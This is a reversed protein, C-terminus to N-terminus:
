WLKLTGGVSDKTQPGSEPLRKILSHFELDKFVQVAKERDYGEWRCEKLSFGIPANKCLDALDRSIFAQERYKLLTEKLRPKIKEIKESKKKIEEYLNELSGFGLLLEIATKEGIGTVGPINDSPDGRLAKFDLIQEPELGRFKEKVLKEDYLVIDKVGRRLSYVKTQSDVLQLNDTDGSL